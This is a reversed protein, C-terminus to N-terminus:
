HYKNLQCVPELPMPLWPEESDIHTVIKLESTEVLSM